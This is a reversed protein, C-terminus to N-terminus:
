PVAPGCPFRAPVGFGRGVGLRGGVLGPHSGAGRRGNGGPWAGGGDNRGRWQWWSRRLADAFGRTGNYATDGYPRRYSAAPRPFAGGTTKWFVTIGGDTQGRLSQTVGAGPVPYAADIRDALPHPLRRQRRRFQRRVSRQIQVPQPRSGASPTSFQLHDAISRFRRQPRKTGPDFHNVPSPLLARLTWRMRDAIVILGDRRPNLQDIAPIRRM